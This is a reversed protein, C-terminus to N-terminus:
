GCRHSSCLPSGGCHGSASITIACVHLLAQGLQPHLEIGGFNEACTLRHASEGLREGVQVRVALGAGARAQGANKACAGPHGPTEDTTTADSAHESLPLPM